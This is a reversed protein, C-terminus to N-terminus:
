TILSVPRANYLHQSKCSQTAAPLYPKGNNPATSPATCRPGGLVEQGAAMALRARDVCVRSHYNIPVSVDQLFVIIISKLKAFM